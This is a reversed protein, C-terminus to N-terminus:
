RGQIYRDFEVSVARPVTEIFWDVIPQSLWDCTERLLEVDLDCTKCKLDDEDTLATGEFQFELLGLSPHNVLHFACRARHLYYTNHTGHKNVAQKLRECFAQYKPSADLPIDFRTITRLPLCDFAIEVWRDM